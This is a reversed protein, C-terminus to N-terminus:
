DLEDDLVSLIQLEIKSAMGEKTELVKIELNEYALERGKRVKKQNNLEFIWAAFTRAKTNPVEQEEAYEDFFQALSVNGDIQFTHHGIEVVHHPLQDYEDYIEGVLEELVDELTLIGVFVHSNRSETVIAMHERSKQIDELVQPLKRRQPVFVPKQMLQSIVIDDERLLADLVDRVRLVGVVQATKYSIIPLRSLKHQRLVEKLQDYTANDYLFIVQDQPIMIDRVSKDDFEIVSEILEREEQELVGEHEITSVIELLEDETATVQEIEMKKEFSEEFKEVVISIPRFITVLWSIPKGVILAFQESSSKALIKPIIEGFILITITMVATAIAVGKAGSFIGTFLSTAISTALINVINNGILITTIVATFNKWNSYAVRARKDGNKAMQKLRIGNLSSYATETASFISSLIILILLIVLLGIHSGEM